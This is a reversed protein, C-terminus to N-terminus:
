KSQPKAIGALLLFVPIMLSVGMFRAMHHSGAYLPDLSLAASLAVMAEFGGPAYAVLAQAFPIGLLAAAVGAGAAAVTFAILFTALAARALERFMSKELYALRSAIVAGMLVFASNTLVPPFGGQALGSLHLAASGLMGGFMLPTNIGLREFLVALGFGASMMLAFDLASAAPPGAPLLVGSQSVSVINPLVAILVFVRFTQIAAIRAVDLRNEEAAAIVAALAGPASALMADPANWRQRRLWLYQLLMAVAMTIALLALSGPYRWLAKLMEPTVTAGTGIGVLLLTLDRFPARITVRGTAVAYVSAAITAGSLWAAPLGSLAFLAGGAAAAALGEAEPFKGRLRVTM